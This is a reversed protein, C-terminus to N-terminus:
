LTAKVSVGNFGIIVIFARELCQRRCVPSRRSQISCINQHSCRGHTTFGDSHGLQRNSNLSITIGKVAAHVAVGSVESQESGVKCALRVSTSYYFLSAPASKIASTAGSDLVAGVVMDVEEAAADVEVLLPANPEDNGRQRNHNDISM